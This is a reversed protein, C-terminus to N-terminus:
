PPVGKSPRTKTFPGAGVPPLVTVSDLLLGDTMTGDLMTTGAPTPIALKGIWVVPTALLVTAVIVAIWPAPEICVVTVIRAGM